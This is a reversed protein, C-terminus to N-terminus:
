VCRLGGVELEVEAAAITKSVNFTRTDVIKVTGAQKQEPKVKSFQFTYPNPTDNPVVMDEEVDEPPPLATSIIDLKNL